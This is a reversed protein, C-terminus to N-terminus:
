RTRNGMAQRPPRSGGSLMRAIAPYVPPVLLFGSVAAVLFGLLAPLNIAPYEVITNVVAILAGFALVQLTPPRPKHRLRAAMPAALIASVALIFLALESLVLDLIEGVVNLPFGPNYVVAAGVKPTSQLSNTLTIADTKVQSISAQQGGVTVTEGSLFEVGQGKTVSFSTTTPAPKSVVASTDSAGVGLVFGVILVVVATAGSLTYYDRRTWPPSSIGAVPRVPRAGVPGRPQPSMLGALLGRRVPPPPLEPEPEPVPVAPVIRSPRRKRKHRPPAM